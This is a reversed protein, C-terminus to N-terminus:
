AQEGRHTDFWRELGSRSKFPYDHRESLHKLIQGAFLGESRWDRACRAAEPHAAMWAEIPRPKLPRPSRKRLPGFIEEHAARDIGLVDLLAYRTTLHPVRKRMEIQYISHRKLGTSEFHSRSLRRATRILQFPHIRRRADIIAEVARM